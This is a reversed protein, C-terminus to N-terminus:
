HNRRTAGFGGPVAGDTRVSRHAFRWDHGIAVLRDRYRGWHDVGHETVALFYCEARAVTPGELDITINSVHHRIMPVTAAAALDTGVGAFFARLEDHGRAVEEGQVELVADPTFLKVVRDFRGGDVHHAYRAITERIADRAALEDVQVVASM